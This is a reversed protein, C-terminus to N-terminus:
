FWEMTKRGLHFLFFLFCFRFCNSLNWSVSLLALFLGSLYFLSLITSNGEKISKIWLIELWCEHEARPAPEEDKEKFYLQPTLIPSSPLTGELLEKTKCKSYIFLLASILCWSKERESKILCCFVGTWQEWGGHTLYHETSPQIPKSVAGLGALFPPPPWSLDLIEAVSASYM